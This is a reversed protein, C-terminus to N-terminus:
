SVTAADAAVRNVRQDRRGNPPNILFFRTFLTFYASKATFEREKM